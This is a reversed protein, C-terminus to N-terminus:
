NDITLGLQTVVTAVCYSRRKPQKEGLCPFRHPKILGERLWKRVDNRPFGASKTLWSILEGRRIFATKPHSM